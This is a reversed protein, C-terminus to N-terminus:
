YSQKGTNLAPRRTKAAEQVEILVSTIQDQVGLIEAIKSLWYVPVKSPSKLLEDIVIDPVLHGLLLPRLDRNVPSAQLIQSIKEDLHGSM